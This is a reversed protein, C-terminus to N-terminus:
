VKSNWDEKFTPYLTQDLLRDQFRKSLKLARAKQEATLMPHNQISLNLMPFFVNFNGMDVADQVHSANLEM